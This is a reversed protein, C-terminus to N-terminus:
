RNLYNRLYFYAGRVGRYILLLVALLAFATSINILFQSISSLIALSNFLMATGFSFVAVSALLLDIYRNRNLYAYIVVAGTLYSIIAVSFLGIDIKMM